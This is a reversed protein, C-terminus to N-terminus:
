SKKFARVSRPLRRRQSGSSRESVCGLNQATNASVQGAGWHGRRRRLGARRTWSPRSEPSISNVNPVMLDHWHSSQSRWRGGCLRMQSGNASATVWPEASPLVAIFVPILREHHTGPTARRPGSLSLGHMGREAQPNRAGGAARSRRRLLRNGSRHRRAGAIAAVAGPRQLSLCDGTDIFRLQEGTTEM